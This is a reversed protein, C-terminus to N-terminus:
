QTKPPTWLKVKKAKYDYDATRCIRAVRAQTLAAKENLGAKEYAKLVAPWRELPTLGDLIQEAKKPGIKPCGSYGDTVDGTLTQMMHRYDAEDENVQQVKDDKMPNYHLGPVTLLDKDITVIIKHPDDILRPNTALIGLVDDAELTPREFCEYAERFHQKLPQLLMPKRVDKRNAKYTPLVKLRWNDPSTLAVVMRDANLKSKLSSLQEDLAAKAPEEFAHLTWLDDTWKIAQEASSAHRYAFVDADILLTTM